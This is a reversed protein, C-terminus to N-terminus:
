GSSCGSALCLLSIESITKLFLNPVLYPHLNYLVFGIGAAVIWFAILRILKSRIFKQRWDFLLIAVPMLFFYFQGPSKTLWSLGLFLGLTITHKLKLRKILLISFYLSWVGFASLLGDPVALRDYFLIFPTVLYLTTALFAVKQSFLEKALLWIGIVSFLGALISATRAAFLPDQIIKLPLAVFWMFIPQKGDTLPIFLWSLDNSITQSWRIYIAEDAFVPLITLNTLRIALFVILFGFGIILKQYKKFFAM